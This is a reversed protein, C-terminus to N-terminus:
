ARLNEERLGDLIQGDKTLEAILTEYGKKQPM